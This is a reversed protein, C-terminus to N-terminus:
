SFGLFFYRGRTNLYLVYILSCIVLVHIVNMVLYHPAGAIVFFISYEINSFIGLIAVLNSLQIRVSTELGLYEAVGLNLLRFVGLRDLFTKM